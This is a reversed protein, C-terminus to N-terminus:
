FRYIGSEKLVDQFQERCYDNAVTCGKKGFIETLAVRVKEMKESTPKTIRLQERVKELGTDEIQDWNASGLGRVLYRALTLGLTHWNDAAASWNKKLQSQLGNLTKILDAGTITRDRAALSLRDAEKAQTSFGRRQLSKAFRDLVRALEASQREIEINKALEIYFGYTFAVVEDSDREELLGMAEDHEPLLRLVAQMREPSAPSYNVQPRVLFVILLVAAVALIGGGALSRFHAGAFSLLRGQKTGNDSLRKLAKEVVVGTDAPEPRHLMDPLEEGVKGTSKKKASAEIKVATSTLQAAAERQRKLPAEIKAQWFQAFQQWDAPLSKDKKGELAAVASKSINDSTSQKSNKKM